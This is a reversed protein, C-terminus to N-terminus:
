RYEGFEFDDAFVFNFRVRSDKVSLKGVEDPGRPCRTEPVILAFSPM